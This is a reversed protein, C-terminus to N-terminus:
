FYYHWQPFRVTEQRGTISPKILCGLMQGIEKATWNRDIMLQKLAAPNDVENGEEDIFRPPYDGTLQIM